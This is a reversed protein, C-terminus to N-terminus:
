SPMDVEPTRYGATDWLLPRPRADVPVTYYIGCENTQLLFAGLHTFNMDLIIITCDISRIESDVPSAIILPSDPSLCDTPGHSCGPLHECEHHWESDLPAFTPPFLSTTERTADMSMQFSRGCTLALMQPLIRM